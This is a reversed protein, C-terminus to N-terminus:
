NASSIARLDAQAAAALPAGALVQTYVRETAAVQRALTFHAAVRRPGARMCRARLDHDALLRHVATALAPPNDPPVLLGERGDRVIERSGGSRTAVVPVGRALAELTVLGFPEARSPVALVDFAPLFRAAQERYGCFHVALGLDRALCRLHRGFRRDGDEGGILVVQLGPWRGRLLAAARLLCDMGKTPCLRGVSGVLPGSRKPLGLERQLDSLPQPADPSRIGNPVTILRNAPLGSALLGDRVAESVAIMAAFRRLFPRKLRPCAISYLQHRTGVNRVPLGATAVAAIYYDRPNHTHLIDPRLRRLRRHLATMGVPEYWDLLRLSYVPLEAGALRAALESDRRVLCSVRHGRARLESALDLLHIEGGYYGLQSSLLGVHM